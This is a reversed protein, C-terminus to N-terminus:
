VYVHTHPWIFGLGKRIFFVRCVSLTNFSTTIIDVCYEHISWPFGCNIAKATSPKNKLRFSPFSGTVGHKELFKGVCCYMNMEWGMWSSSLIIHDIPINKAVPVFIFASFYRELFLLATSSAGWSLRLKKSFLFVDSTLMWSEYFIEYLWIQPIILLSYTCKIIDM